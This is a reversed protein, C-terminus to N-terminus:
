LARRCAHRVRRKRDHRPSIWSEVRNRRVAEAREERRIRGVRGATPVHRCRFPRPRYRWEYRAAELWALGWWATDDLYGNVFNTSADAHPRRVNRAYTTLIVHEYSPDTNRTRELYRLLTRLALASQWWHPRANRTWWLGTTPNWAFSPDNRDRGVLEAIGRSAAVGFSPPPLLARRALRSMAVRSVVAGGSIGGPTLVALSGVVLVFARAFRSSALLRRVILV